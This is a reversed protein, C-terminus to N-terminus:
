FFWVAALGFSVVYTFPYVWDLVSDIREALEEQGRMEMRRLWVSYVVVLANVVFTIAMVADLFTLYGLRPYNESLSWSFAIFLLLNASAVEIRMGYDRLFFTVWSVIIILLIPVFIAFIYYSLHRPGEFSFTYRSTIAGGSRRESTVSSEFGTLEFEDEGHEPSIETFGEMAVYKYFEEPVLSDIRIVFKQTDFPYQRFDFDVQFDTTFREFYTAHGNPAVTLLQNQIWRNGQQNQLTFDPWRGEAAAVLRSVGPESFSKLDCNCSEPNFAMAPDTWDMQLTGVATFFESQHDVDVIQEVRMGINVEIPERVVDRGGESEAKGTLVEPENVGVLLRYDGSTAQEGESTSAIELRYNQGEVPFTYQLSAVTDEGGLNGSRIPKRAFNELQITPILDGSTAELFVYLTDGEVFRNLTIFTSTKDPTLSGTLEQVGVGPPTAEKDIVALTDGTPEADGKLVQPADLGLLLRYDGFTQVGLMSLAGGVLLRYDGESPIEFELAATLGGGGDDDWALAFEDRVREAAELPDTGDAVARDVAAEFALELVEPDVDLAMVAVIPDLNGSTAQAYVYLREGEQLDPLLYLIVEGSEIWGTLEQVPGGEQAAVPGPAVVLGVTLALLLAVWRSWTKIHLRANSLELIWMTM